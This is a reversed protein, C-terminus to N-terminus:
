IFGTRGKVTHVIEFFVSFILGLAVPKLSADAKDTETQPALCPHINEKPFHLRNLYRPECFARNMPHGVVQSHTCGFFM